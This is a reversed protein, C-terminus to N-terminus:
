RVAASASPRTLPGAAARTVRAGGLAARASRSRAAMLPAVERAVALGIGQGAVSEDARAGRELVRAREPCACHRAGDDEVELVLGPRRWAAATWPTARVAVASAAMSAPTTWLNGALELFDGADIPYATGPAVAVRRRTVPKDAYVKALAARLQELPEQM